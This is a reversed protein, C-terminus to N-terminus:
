SVKPMRHFLDMETPAGVLASATMEKPPLAGSIVVISEVAGYRAPRDIHNLSRCRFRLCTPRPWFSMSAPPWADHSEFVSFLVAVATLDAVVM